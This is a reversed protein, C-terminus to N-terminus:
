AAVRRPRFRGVVAYGAGLLIAAGIGIASRSPDAIILAAVLSLNLAIGILSPLPFLPMKFPRPLDPEKIRMVIAALDIAVITSATLPVAMAVLEVYSGSVAAAAAVLASAALAPRPSGSASASALVRPLVGDRAMAFAVRSTFMLYLNAIAGISLLALATILTGGSSGFVRSAADAAPLNSAGMEAPTLVNLIAANVAVYLAIVLLIGGFTGRVINREPAVIEEGFYVNGTWGNYTNVINTLALLLAAIGVAPSIAAPEAAAAVTPENAAPFAFLAIVLLLLALGKAASFLTQSAGSIRTGTWNIAFCAALLGLSLAWVPLGGGIGLRQCYEGFVVALFAMVLTGLIWDAWGVVTGVVEGYVRRALVYPGGTCPISTGLEVWSCADILIMVGVLAWLVLLLTPDPIAGAIIGPTRLIGQGVVGGVVVALGFALGLVRLLHGAARPRTAQDM